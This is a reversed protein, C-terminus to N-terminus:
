ASFSPNEKMEVDKSASGPVVKRMVAPHSIEVGSVVKVPASHRWMGPKTPYVSTGDPKVPCFGVPM